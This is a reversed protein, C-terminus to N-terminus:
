YKFTYPSSMVHWDFSLDNREMIGKFSTPLASLFEVPNSGDTVKCLQFHKHECINISEFTTYVYLNIILCSM